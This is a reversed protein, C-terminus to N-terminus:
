RHEQPSVRTPTSGHLAQRSRRMAQERTPLPLGNVAALERGRSASVTALVERYETHARADWGLRRLCDALLMRVQFLGPELFLAARYSAIAQQFRGSVDHIFGEVAHIEPETPDFRVAQEVLESAEALRNAAIARSAAALRDGTGISGAPVPEPARAESTSPTRGTSRPTPRRPQPADAPRAVSPAPRPAGTVQSRMRAAAQPRREAGPPRYCFCDGLDVAQLRDSVQWLTESPGIFLFGRSALAGAIGEIVRRQSEARFYILVNRLFILDYPEVFVPFPERILNLPQYSIRELLDPSLKYADGQRCFHRELFRPPVHAMSRASYVGRRAAALAEEDVDTADISWEWNALADAEALMIALTAPEEGNACGASWVRLRRSTARFESLQPICVAALAAFHQPTRFLFSEKVTILPLLRRWEDTLHGSALARVYADADSLGHERARATAVDRLFPFHGTPVVNGSTEEILRALEHIADAGTM